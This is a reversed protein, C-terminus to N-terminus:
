DHKGESLWQWNDDSDPEIEPSGAERRKQEENRRLVSLHDEIELLHTGCEASNLDLSDVSKLKSKLTSSVESLEERIARGETVVVMQLRHLSMLIFVLLGVFVWVM